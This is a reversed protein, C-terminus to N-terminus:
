KTMIKKYLKIYEKASKQWSFDSKMGNLMLEHWTDPYKQYILIADELKAKLEGADVNVFSFGLASKQNKFNFKGLKLKKYELPLVTDALGGTNRVLPITGYRMAILQGLGCPEFRSPMLFIDSSAYIKQALEISFKINASFSKPFKKGQRAFQKEYEKQGTGLIVFQCNLRCLDDTILELGKQWVLRTVVAVLPVNDALALGLEKQLALKNKSKNKLNTSSFNHAILPDKSPNFFDTDIGNTIGFLDNKRKAILRELGAGYTSTTIEKAYNPSVTNVLDANLVGQAMFNIDGDRADINLSKLSGTNLNGTSLVTTRTKGQYRFNHITYLTKLKQIYALNSTKIIDPVLATHSDHCHVIDPAFKIVPLAYLAAYSFFLFRESNNGKLYIEERDFYSPADIFYIKVKTKPLVSQWINTKILLRGSPIELDAYIKKLKYKKRDISAYLPVIVRVEPGLKQIAQPLSGMVDALGGVKALPAVEAALMLIKLKKTPM